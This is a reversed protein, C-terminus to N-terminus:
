SPKSVVAVGLGSAVPDRELDIRLIFCTLGQRKEGAAARAGCAALGGRHRRDAHYVRTAAYRNGLESSLMADALVPVKIPVSVIPATCLWQRLHTMRAKRTHTLADPMDAIAGIAVLYTHPWMEAFPWTHVAGLQCPSEERTCYQDTRGHTRGVIRNVHGSAM